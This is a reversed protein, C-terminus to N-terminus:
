PSHYIVTDPGPKGTFKEIARQHAKNRGLVRILLKAGNHMAKVYEQIVLLAARKGALGADPTPYMDTVEIYGGDLLREGVVLILKEGKYIGVWRQALPAAGEPLGWLAKHHDVAAQIGPTDAPIERATM